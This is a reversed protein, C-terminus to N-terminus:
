RQTLQRAKQSLLGADGWTFDVKPSAAYDALSEMLKDFSEQTDDFLFVFQEGDKQIAVVNMGRLTLQM